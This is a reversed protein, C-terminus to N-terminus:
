KYKVMQEILLHLSTLWLRLKTAIQEDVFSKQPSVKHMSYQARQEQSLNSVELMTRNFIKKLINSLQLRLRSKINQLSVQQNKDVLETFAFHKLSKFALFALSKLKPNSIADIDDFIKKFADILLLKINDPDIAFELNAAAAAVELRNLLYLELGNGNQLKKNSYYEAIDENIYDELTYLQGFDEKEDISQFYKLSGRKMAEHVLDHLFFDLDYSPHNICEDPTMPTIKMPILVLKNFKELAEIGFVEKSIKSRNVQIIISNIDRGTNLIDFTESVANCYLQAKELILDINQM